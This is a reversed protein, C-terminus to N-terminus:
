YVKMREAAIYSSCSNLCEALTEFNNNNADCGGYTFEVCTQAESSYAYRKFAAKCPGTKIYERCGIQPDIFYKKIKQIKLLTLFSVLRNEQSAIKSQLANMMKM